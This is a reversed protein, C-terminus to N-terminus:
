VEGRALLLPVPANATSAEQKTLASRGAHLREQEMLVGRVAEHMDRGRDEATYTNYAAGGAAGLLTGLAKGTIGSKPLFKNNAMLGALAGVTPHLLKGREEELRIMAPLDLGARLDQYAREYTGQPVFREMGDYRVDGGSVGAFFPTGPVNISLRNEAVKPRWHPDRDDWPSEVRNM